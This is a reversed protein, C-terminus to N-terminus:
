QSECVKLVVGICICEMIKFSKEHFQGLKRNSFTNNFEFKQLVLFLIALFDSTFEEGECCDIRISPGNWLIDNHM